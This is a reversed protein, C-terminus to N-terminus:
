VKEIKKQFQQFMSESITDLFRTGALIDRARQKVWMIEAQVSVHLVTRPILIKLQIIAGSVIGAGEALPFTVGAGSVSINTIVCDKEHAGKDRSQFAAMLLVNVRPNARKRVYFSEDMHWGYVLM